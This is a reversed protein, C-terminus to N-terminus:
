GQQLPGPDPEDELPHLVERMLERQRAHMEDSMSHEDWPFVEITADLGLERLEDVLRVAPEVPVIPDGRGHLARIPPYTRKPDFSEEVLFGPLWGAGPFVGAFLQPHRLALGFSMMGGQSFGSVLAKGLTPRREGFAAIVKAMRDSQERIFHGLV